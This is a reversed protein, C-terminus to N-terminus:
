FAFLSQYLRALFCKKSSTPLISSHFELSSLMSIILQLALNNETRMGEQEGTRLGRVMLWIMKQIIAHKSTAPQDAM